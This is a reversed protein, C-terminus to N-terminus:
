RKEYPCSFIITKPWILSKHFNVLIYLLRLDAVTTVPKSDTIFSLHFCSVEAHTVRGEIMDIINISTTLFLVHTNSNIPTQKNKMCNVVFWISSNSQLLCSEISQPWLHNNHVM